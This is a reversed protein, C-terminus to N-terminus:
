KFKERGSQNLMPNTGDYPEGQHSLNNNVIDDPNRREHPRVTEWQGNRFREYGEVDHTQYDVDLNNDEVSDTNNTFWGDEFEEIEGLFSLILPLFMFLLEFPSQLVKYLGQCLTLGEEEMQAEAKNIIESGIFVFWYALAFCLSAHFAIDSLVEQPTWYSYYRPATLYDILEILGICNHSDLEFMAFIFYGALAYIALGAGIYRFNRYIYGAKKILGLITLVLGLPTIIICLALYVLSWWSYNAIKSLLTIAALIIAGIMLLFVGAQPSFVIGCLLILFFGTIIHHSRPPEYKEGDKEIFGRRIFELPKYILKVFAGFPAWFYSIPEYEKPTDKDVDPKQKSSAPVTEGEMKRLRNRLGNQFKIGMPSQFTYNKEKLFSSVKLLDEKKTLDFQAAVRKIFEYEKKARLYETETDFEYEGLRYKSM